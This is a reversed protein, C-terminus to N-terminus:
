RDRGNNGPHDVAVVVYGHGAFINKRVGWSGRRAASAMVFM